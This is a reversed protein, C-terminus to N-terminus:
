KLTWKKTRYCPISFKKCVCGAFHQLLFSLRHQATYNLGDTIVFKELNYKQQLERVNKQAPIRTIYCHNEVSVVFTDGAEAVGYSKLNHRTWTCPCMCHFNQFIWKYQRLTQKGSM